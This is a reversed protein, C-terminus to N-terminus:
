GEEVERWIMLQKTEKDKKVRVPGLGSKDFRRSQRLVALSVSHDTAFQEAPIATTPIAIFAESIKSGKRGRKKSEKVPKTSTLPATTKITPKVHSTIGSNRAPATVSETKAANKFMDAYEDVNIESAAQFNGSARLDRATNLEDTNLGLTNCIVEDSPSYKDILAFRDSWNLTNIKDKSM